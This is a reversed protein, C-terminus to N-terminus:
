PNFVSRVARFGVNNSRTAPNFPTVTLGGCNTPTWSTSVINRQSVRFAGNVYDGGRLGVYLAQAGGFCSVTGTPTQYSSNTATAVTNWTPIDGHGASSLQGNGHITSTFPSSYGSWCNCSSQVFGAMVVMEALNGTMEMVGYFAAGAQRRQQTTHNKAAFIGCRVPGQTNGTPSSNLTVNTGHCNVQSTAASPIAESITNDNLLTTATFNTISTNGWAYEGNIPYIPGYNVDHGRCIKEYEFESMPRLGAWDAYAIADWWSLFNCARDGSGVPGFRNLQADDLNNGSWNFNLRNASAQAQTINRNTKQPDAAPATPLTNFFDLYQRQSVEYKMVYFAQFGKPYAAPLTYSTTIGTGFHPDYLGNLLTSTSPLLTIPGESTVLYAENGQATTSPQNNRRFSGITPAQNINGDGLYFSGQPIYVMEIAFVQITVSENDDVGDARYNWRLTVDQWNIPGPGGVNARQIFVGVGDPVTVFQAPVGNDNLVTHHSAVTSLTAHRYNGGFPQFKVFVWAADWNAPGTNTRWSNDWTLTFRVFTHNNPHNPGASTNQNVLTVNTVQINNARLFTGLPLTLALLTVIKRM